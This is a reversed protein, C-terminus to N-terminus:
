VKRGDLREGNNSIVKKREIKKRLREALMIM